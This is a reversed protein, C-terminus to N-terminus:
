LPGTVSDDYGTGRVWRGPESAAAAAAARLAAGLGARDAVEPPGCPVSARRAAMARLHLHHDHLGPLLAGGSGEVVTAGAWESATRRRAEPPDVFAVTGAAVGVRCAPRGEVEVDEFVTTRPDGLAVPAM